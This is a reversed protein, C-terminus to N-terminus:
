ACVFEEALCAPWVDIGQKHLDRLHLVDLSCCITCFYSLHAQSQVINLTRDGARIVQQRYSTM